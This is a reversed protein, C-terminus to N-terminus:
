KVFKATSHWQDAVIGDGLSPRLGGTDLADEIGMAPGGPSSPARPSTRRKTVETGKTARVLVARRGPKIPPSRSGARHERIAWTTGVSQRSNCM